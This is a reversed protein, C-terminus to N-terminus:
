HICRDPYSAFPIRSMRYKFIHFQFHISDSIGLLRSVNPWEVFSASYKRLSRGIYIIKGHKDKMIYVGPTVPLKMAKARLYKIKENM